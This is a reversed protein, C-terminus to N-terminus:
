TDNPTLVKSINSCLVEQIDIKEVVIDNKQLDLQIKEFFEQSVYMPMELTASCTTANDYKEIIRCIADAMDDTANLLLGCIDENMSANQMSIREVQVEPVSTILDCEETMQLGTIRFRLSSLDSSASARVYTIPLQYRNFQINITDEELKGCYRKNDIILYELGCLINFELLKLSLRCVRDNNKFVNFLCQQRNHSYVELLFREDQINRDCYVDSITSPTTMQPTTNLPYMPITTFEINNCPIQEYVAKFGRGCTPGVSTFIIEESRNRLDLSLGTNQLAHGCYKIKGGVLLYDKQCQYSKLIDFDSFYLRVGCYGMLPEFRICVRSGGPYYYPYKPSQIYGRIYDARTCQVTLHNSIANCRTIEKWLNGSSLWRLQTVSLAECKCMDYVNMFQMEYDFTNIYTTDERDRRPKTDEFVYVYNVIQSDLYNVYENILRAKTILREKNKFSSIREPCEDQTIELIFGDQPLGVNRVRITKFPSEFGSVLKLGTRCGCIFKGDFEIYGENCINSSLHKGFRFYLFDIRLQCVKYSARRIQYVCNDLKSSSYYFNSSSVFFHKTNFENSCCLPIQQNLGLSRRCPLRTILIKISSNLSGSNIVLRLNLGGVRSFYTKIGTIPGCLIENEFVELKDLKCETSSSLNFSVFHFNFYTPCEPGKLLFRCNVNISESKPIDILVRDDYYIRNCIELGNSCKILVLLFLNLNLLVRAYM